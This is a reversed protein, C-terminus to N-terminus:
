CRFLESAAASSTRYSCFGTGADLATNPNHAGTSVGVPLGSALPLELSIERWHSSPRYYPYGMWRWFMRPIRVRVGDPLREVVSGLLGRQFSVSAEAYELWFRCSDTGAPLLLQRDHKQGTGVECRGLMGDVGNWRNAVKAEIRRGSDKVYLINQPGLPRNESASISLTVLLMERGTDDFIGAREKSVLILNPLRHRTESPWVLVALSVSGAVVLAGAIIRRARM